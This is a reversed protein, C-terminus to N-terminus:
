FTIVHYGEALLTRFSPHRKYEDLLTVGAEKVGDTAEFADACFSCAGHVADHISEWLQHAQHDDRALEGADVMEKAAVMANVVRGLGEHTEDDALVVLAVKM